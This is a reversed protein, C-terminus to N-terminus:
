RYLHTIFFFTDPDSNSASWHRGIFYSAFVFINDLHLLLSTFNNNLISFLLSLSLSLKTEIHYISLITLLDVNKLLGCQWDNLTYKLAIISCNESVPLSTCSFSKGHLSVSLTVFVFTNNWSSKFSYNM